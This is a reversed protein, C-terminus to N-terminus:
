NQNAKSSNKEFSVVLRASIQLQRAAQLREIKRQVVVIRPHLPVLRLQGLENRVNRQRRRRQCRRRETIDAASAGCTVWM